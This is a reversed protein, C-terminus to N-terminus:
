DGSFGDCHWTSRSRCAHPPSRLTQTSMPGRLGARDLKFPIKHQESLLEAFKALPMREVRIDTKSNLERLVALFPPEGREGTREGIRGGIKEGAQRPLGKAPPVFPASMKEQANLSLCMAALAVLLVSGALPIFRNMASFAERGRGTRAPQFVRRSRSPVGRAAVIRARRHDALRGPRPPSGQSERRKGVPDLGFGAHDRRRRGRSELGRRRGRESQVPQSQLLLEIVETEAGIAARGTNPRSLIGATEDMVMAVSQLLHIEKGFDAQADPLERIRTIVKGVREFLGRQTQALKGAQQKYDEPLLSPRAQEAVRTEERLNMEGELIQLVELVVSPPLSGKSKCGPCAGKCAPDVLDEAWRDLTDSWYECQAISLGKETKVDGALQRLNGIVDQKRMDDLVAKIKVFRHRDFYADMDDMILSVTDSGKSEQEPCKPFRRRRPMAWIM